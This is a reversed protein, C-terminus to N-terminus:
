FRDYKINNNNEISYPIYIENNNINHFIYLNEDRSLYSIFIDFDIINNIFNDFDNDIKIIYIDEFDYDNFNIKKNIKNFYNYINEYDDYIFNIYNENEILNKFIINKM